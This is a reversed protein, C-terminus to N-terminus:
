KQLYTASNSGHEFVRVSVVRVRGIDEEWVSTNLMGQMTDFAMKAFAECGVAGDIVRVNALDNDHLDLLRNRQPDDQAVLLTHDFTDKLWAAFPKFGGFDYVWNSENLEDAELVIEFGLAYGHLLACHSDARHQRFCCSLGRENGYTKTVQYTM